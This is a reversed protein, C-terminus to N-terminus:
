KVEDKRERYPEKGIGGGWAPQTRLSKQILLGVQECSGVGEWSDGM